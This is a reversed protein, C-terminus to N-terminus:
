SRVITNGEIVLITVFEPLQSFYVVEVIRDERLAELTALPFSPASMSEADVMQRFGPTHMRKLSILFSPVPGRGM